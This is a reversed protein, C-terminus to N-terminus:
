WLVSSIGKFPGPCPFLAPGGMHVHMLVAAIFMRAAKCWPASNVLGDCCGCVDRGISPKMSLVVPYELLNVMSSSMNVLSRWSGWFNYSKSTDMTSSAWFIVWLHSLSRQLVPPLNSSVLHKVYMKCQTNSSILLGVSAVFSKRWFVSFMWGIVIWCLPVPSIASNSCFSHVLGWRVKPEIMAGSLLWFPSNFLSDVLDLFCASSRRTALTDGLSALVYVCLM